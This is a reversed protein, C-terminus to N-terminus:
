AWARTSAPSAGGTAYNHRIFRGLVQTQVQLTLGKHYFLRTATKRPISPPPLLVEHRTPSSFDTSPLPIAAPLLTTRRSFVRGALRQM